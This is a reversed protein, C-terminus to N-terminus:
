MGGALTIVGFTAGQPDTLATFRGVPADMVPMLTRAGLRTATSVAVDTDSVAFYVLWHPPVEPPFNDGMPLAGAISKGDLLWETYSTDGMPNTRADWGFVSAYFRRAADLDRTHLESWCYSNPVNTVDSGTHQGPQWVSIAAGSPDMYVAMTGQDAIQMPAVLVQGGASRVKETTAGADATSVYTSWAPPQQPSMLPGCGAASQDGLLFMTYGGFQPDPSTEAKWGFLEGYFAKSAGVDPTGLDVWSPTGPAYTPSAM